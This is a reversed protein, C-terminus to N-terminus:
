EEDASSSSEESANDVANAVAKKELALRKKETKSETYLRNLELLEEKTVFRSDPLGPPPKEAFYSALSVACQWKKQVVLRAFQKVPRNSTGGFEKANNIEEALVSADKYGSQTFYQTGYYNRNNCWVDTNEWPASLASAKPNSDMYWAKIVNAIHSPDDAGLFYGLDGSPLKAPLLGAGLPERTLVPFVLGTVKEQSYSCFGYDKKTVYCRTVLFGLMDSITKYDSETLAKISDKVRKIRPKQKENDREQSTARQRKSMAPQLIFWPM